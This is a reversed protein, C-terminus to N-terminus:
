QNLLKGVLAEAQKNLITTFAEGILDIVQDGSPSPAPKGEQAQAAGSCSLVAVALTVAALVRKTNTM